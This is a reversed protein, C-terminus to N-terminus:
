ILNVKRACDEHYPHKGGRNGTKSFIRMGILIRGRCLRCKTKGLGALITLRNETMVYLRDYRSMKVMEKNGAANRGARPVIKYLVPAVLVEGEALIPAGVPKDGQRDPHTDNEDSPRM